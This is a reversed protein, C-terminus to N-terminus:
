SNMYFKIFLNYGSIRRKEAKRNYVRKQEDTLSQWAAISAAFLSRRSQQATSSPNTPWYFAERSIKWGAKTKKRQWIGAYKNSEGFQVFGFFASGFDQSFGLRKQAHLSLIKNTGEIIAM